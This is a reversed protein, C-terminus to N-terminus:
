NGRDKFRDATNRQAPTGYASEWCQGTSSRLQVIVNPNQQFPLGPLTLSDGQARVQIKSRGAPGAKLM